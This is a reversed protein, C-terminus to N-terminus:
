SGSSGSRSSPSTSAPVTAPRRRARRAGVGDGDARGVELEGLARVRNDVGPAVAGGAVLERVWLMLPSCEAGPPTGAPSPPPRPSAPVGAHARPRIAAARTPRRPTSGGGQSRTPAGSIRESGVLGARVLGWALRVPATIPRSSLRATRTATGPRGAGGGRRRHLAVPLAAAAGAADAPVLPSGCRRRRRVRSAVTAARDEVRAPAVSREQPAPRRRDTDDHRGDTDVRRDVRTPTSGSPEHSQRRVHAPDAPVAERRV